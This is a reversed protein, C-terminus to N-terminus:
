KKKPQTLEKYASMIANRDSGCKIIFEEETLPTVGEELACLYAIYLICIIDIEDYERMNGTLKCYKDYLKKNTARLQYMKYFTLTMNVKDGDQFKFEINTNLKNNVM